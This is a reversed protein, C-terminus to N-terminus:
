PHALAVLIVELCGCILFLGWAIPVYGQRCYQRHMQIMWHAIM